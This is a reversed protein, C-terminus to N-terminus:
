WSAPGAAQRGVRSSAQIYEATNKPQGVVLMLGLRDVDVGVQLMSTALVVDFPRAGRDPVPKGAKRLAALERKEARRTSSRTSPSRWRTWRRRHHGGLGGASTLEALHLQGYDTGYRRPLLSWPRRQALATQIDDGLYRAMGALERTASFYGVLTLYPDAADGSRDILLQGAAM